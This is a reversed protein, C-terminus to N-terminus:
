PRNDSLALAADTLKHLMHCCCRLIKQKVALIPNKGNYGDCKTARKQNLLGPSGCRAVCQRESVGGLVAGTLGSVVSLRPICKGDSSYVTVDLGAFRLLQDSRSFM